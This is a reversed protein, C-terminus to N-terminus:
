VNFRLARALHVIFHVASFQILNSYFARSIMEKLSVCFLCMVVVKKNPIKQGSRKPFSVEM